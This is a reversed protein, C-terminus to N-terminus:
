RPKTAKRPARSSSPAYRIVNAGAALRAESDEIVERLEPRQRCESIFLHAAKNLLDSRSPTPYLRDEGMRRAIADLLEAVIPELNVHTKLKRTGPRQEM